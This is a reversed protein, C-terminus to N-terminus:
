VLPLIMDLDAIKIIARMQAPVNVFVLEQQGRQAWGLWGVLLAVGASNAHTVASLDIRSPPSATFLSETADWLEAVSDFDLQGRIHLTEGNREVMTATM